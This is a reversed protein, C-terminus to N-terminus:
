RTAGHPRASGHVFRRTGTIDAGWGLVELMGALEDPEYFVKVVRHESGDDLRRLQVDDDADILYPDPRTRTPDHRNDILFARGGPELCRRVLDWFANFRDRPVHSLWFSFFVVDYRHSPQWGFLDAEIWEIDPRGVRQRNIALTERSGDVVTLRDACRALRTTWWGTGGALELVDGTPGFADLADEVEALQAEWDQRDDPGADYRGCRQWWDDYQPARHRYYAQQEDLLEADSLSAM